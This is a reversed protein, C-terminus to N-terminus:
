EISEVMYSMTFCIKLSALLSGYMLHPLGTVVIDDDIIIWSRVLMIKEQSSWPLLQNTEM